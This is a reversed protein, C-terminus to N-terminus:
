QNNGLGTEPESIAAGNDHAGAGAPEEIALMRGAREATVHVRHAPSFFLGWLVALAVLKAALLWAIKRRLQRRWDQASGTVSTVPLPSLM